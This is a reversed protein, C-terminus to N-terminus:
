PRLAAHLQDIARPTDDATATLVVRDLPGRAEAISPRAVLVSQNSVKGAVGARVGDRAVAEVHPPRGILTVDSGAQALRAGLLSGVAGAGFFLFRLPPAPAARTPM